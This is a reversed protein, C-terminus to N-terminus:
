CIFIRILLPWSLNIKKYGASVNRGEVKKETRQGERPEGRGGNGM